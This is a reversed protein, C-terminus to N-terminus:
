FSVPSSADSCRVQADADSTDTASLLVALTAFETCTIRHQDDLDAANFLMQAIEVEEANLYGRVTSEPQANNSGNSMAARWAAASIGDVQTKDDHSTHTSTHNLHTEFAEIKGYLELLGYLCDQAGENLVANEIYFDENESKTLSESEKMAADYEKKMIFSKLAERQRKKIPGADPELLTVAVCTIPLFLWFALMSWNMFNSPDEDSYKTSFDFGSVFPNGEDSQV